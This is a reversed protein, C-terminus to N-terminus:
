QTSLQDLHLNMGHTCPHLNRPQVPSRLNNACQRTRRGAQYYSKSKRLKRFKADAGSYLPYVIKQRNIRQVSPPEQPANQRILYASAQLYKDQYQQPAHTDPPHYPKRSANKGQYRSKERGNMVQSSINRAFFSRESYLLKM